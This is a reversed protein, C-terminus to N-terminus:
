LLEKNIGDLTEKADPAMGFLPALKECAYQPCHGCNAIKREIGCKRIECVKPHTFLRGGKSLCGECNIDEPKIEVHFQKSWAQATEARKQDDDARTALFAPCRSCNLGCCATMKIM